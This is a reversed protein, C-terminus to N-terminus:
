MNETCVYGSKKGEKELQRLIDGVTTYVGDELSVKVDESVEEIEEVAYFESAEIGTLGQYYEVAEEPSAAAVTEGECVEWAKLKTNM